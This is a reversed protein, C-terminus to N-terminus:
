LLPVFAVLLLASAMVAMPLLIREHRRWFGGREEEEEAVEGVVQRALLHNLAVPPTLYGLEFAVLVVMWFHVPDIGADYAVKAIAASVLIVAGYPDMIMGIVVLLVVLLAMAAIPSGLDHPVMEMLRAREIVGGICVSLGMLLLLAGIHGTTERTAGTLALRWSAREDALDLPQASEGRRDWWLLVLLLFPLLIPASHEDLTADLGAWTLLLLGAVLVAYPLLARLASLCPGMAERPRAMTLPGRRTVLAALFFLVATLGFVRWGWHFLQDTTVQKNLSAVIVVLLCPPLVVGLSGSMATAALALQSRAGAACLERYIVAGAAIVFIGSAGSYATPIASAAVVVFALLEPPLKWPRLVDFSLEALRTRKLLMGAWVYLGVHIYLTSHETLKQLYIALGSPHGEALYFYAGSLIAMSAYLPVTLVAHGFRGPPAETRRAERLNLLNILALVAFGAMWLVPLSAHQHEVGSDRDILWKSASSGLLLLNAALQGVEAVIGDRRTRVPRLAIHCRLSTATAACILLLLVLLHRMWAVGLKVVSAVSGEVAYFAKLGATRRALLARYAEHRERCAKRAAELAAAEAEADEAEDGMLDDLFDDGDGAEDGSEETKATSGAPPADPDCTPKEPEVRLSAYGPWVAEGIQLLRAHIKEGLGYLLVSCLLLVTPLTSLWTRLPGGRADPHSM